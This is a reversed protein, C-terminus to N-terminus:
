ATYQIFITGIPTTSATPPSGTGYVVNVVEPDTATGHDYATIAGSTMGLTGNLTVDTATTKGISVADGSSPQIQLEGADDIIFHAKDDTTNEITFDGWNNYIRWNDRTTNLDIFASEDGSEITLKPDNAGYLHLLTTPTGQGIGVRHNTSDIHLTNTDFSYDGSATDGDNKLYDDATSVASVASTDFDSITSATQTGSHNARNRDASHYHLTSDNGDTLDTANADSINNVEASTEITDLKTGDTAINRGDVTGTLTLNGSIDVNGNPIEVDGSARLRLSSTGGGTGTFFDFMGSGDAGDRRAYLRAVYNTASATADDGLAFVFGGGFGDTMDGSTETTCKFGSAIGSTTGFSGGTATTTRTFEGVPFGSHTAYFPGSLDNTIFGSDNTLTSINDSPQISSDALDLSANVSADLKTEDISGAVLSATINQDTLTFDIESSDTVTVADHLDGTAAIGAEALTNNIWGAGDYKLIEGSGITTLTVDSIDALSAAAIRADARVDTYYLNTGESLDTTSFGSLDSFHITSDALHTDIQAHTNTGIDTLETHSTPITPKDSLDTYSGTIAVSSLDESQISSDALNLSSNISASLKTENISGAILEATIQPTSDDYNLNIESTDTLINGVADQAKEDIYDSTVISDDVYKKDVLETDELFTPHISYSVKSTFDRSGDIRSYPTLDQGGTELRLSIEGEDSIRLNIDGEEITRLNIDSNEGIRLNIDDM